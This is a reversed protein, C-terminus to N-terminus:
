ITSRPPQPQPQETSDTLESSTDWAQTEEAAMQQEGVENATRPTRRTWSLLRDGLMQRRERGREPDLFYMLALGAGVGALLAIGPVFNPGTTGSETTLRVSRAEKAASQAGDRLDKATQRSSLALATGLTALGQVLQRSWSNASGVPDHRITAAHTGADQRYQAAAQALHEAEQSFARRMEDLKSAAGNAHTEDPAKWPMTMTM